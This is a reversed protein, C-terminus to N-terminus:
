IRVKGSSVKWFRCRRSCRLRAYLLRSVRFRAAKSETPVRAWRCMSRLWLLRCARLTFLYTQSFM